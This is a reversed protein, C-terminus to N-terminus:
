FVADLIILFETRQYQYRELSSQNDVWGLEMGLRWRSDLQYGAFLLTRLQDDERTDTRIQGNESLRHPEAYRSVRVTQSLGLSLRDTIQREVSFEVNHRSPSLSFFETETALGDRRDLDLRYSAGFNWRAMSKEVSVSGGYLEGDYASFGTGGQIKAVFVEIECNVALVDPWFCGPRDYAMDLQVQRELLDAGFWYGSLTIGSLLRAKELSQQWAAGASFYTNDFEGNGPYQRTYAIADLRIASGRDQNLYVRGSALLDAFAGARDTTENNPTSAINNDYGAATSLFGVNPILRAERDPLAVEGTTSYDSSRGPFSALQQQALARIQDPSSDDAAQDFWTRAGQLDGKKKLVLGLNYRALPAHPTDLLETFAAEAQDLRDLRFYVVGLNYLLSSSELGSDRAQELLVRAKEIEGDKFAAIGSRFDVEAASQGAQSIGSLAMSAILLGVWPCFKM